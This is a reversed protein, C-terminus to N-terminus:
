YNFIRRQWPLEEQADPTKTANNTQSAKGSSVTPKLWPLVEPEENAAKHASKGDRGTTAILTRKALPQKKIREEYQAFRKETQEDYEALPVLSQKPVIHVVRFGGAHLQDLLSNLGRATSLQIDHMLVIGKGLTKLQNMIRNNVVASDRTLYDKSDVDIWLAALKRKRIYGNSFKGAALYPYRFFPAAKAGVARSVASVGLEIENTITKEGSTKMNKHSWTHTAVTHGAEAVQRAMAPDAMVMRGVMFFTAKTCHATLAKLVATTYPRLPGDDFTLVVEGRKLFETDGGHSGGIQPGSTADIEVVRSLGLRDPSSACSPQQQSPLRPGSDINAPEARTGTTGALIALMAAAGLARHFYGTTM